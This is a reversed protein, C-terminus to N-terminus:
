DWPYVIWRDAVEEGVIMKVNSLDIDEKKKNKNHIVSVYIEEPELDKIKPLLFSITKRTDDVEDVILIKKGKIIDNNEFWQNIMPEEVRNDNEDYCSISITYIPKKIVTRMIRSPILGGGGIAVILDPKYEDLINHALRRCIEDIYTYSYYIKSM